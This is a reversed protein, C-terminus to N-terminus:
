LAQLAYGQDNVDPQLNVRRVCWQSLYGLVRQTQMFLMASDQRM